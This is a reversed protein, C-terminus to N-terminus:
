RRGAGHEQGDISSRYGIAPFRRLRHAPVTEVVREIQSETRRVHAILDAISIM